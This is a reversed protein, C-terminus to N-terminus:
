AIGAVSVKAGAGAGHPDPGILAPTGIRGSAVPAGVGAHPRANRRRDWLWIAPRDRHDLGAVIQVRSRCKYDEAAGPHLERHNITGGAGLPCLGGRPAPRAPSADANAAGTKGRSDLGVGVRYPGLVRAARLRVQIWRLQKLAAKQQDDQGSAELTRFSEDTKARISNFQDVYQQAHSADLDLLYDRTLIANLYVNARIAALAVGAEIQAKQLAAVREQSNRANSWVAFASVGIVLLLAALAAALFISRRVHMSRGM